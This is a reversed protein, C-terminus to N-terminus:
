LVVAVESVGNAVVKSGSRGLSGQDFVRNVAAVDSTPLWSGYVDVTMSISAHGLQQQVYALSAGSAVLLSGYTHRLSHPTHWGPLKAAVLVRIMARRIRKVIRQEDTRDPKEGLDPFLVWSSVRQGTRFADERRSAQLEILVDRLVDAMDVVRHSAQTKTTGSIQVDVAIKQSGLDVKDWTLAMAEGVRLGACGMVAFGPYLDPTKVRAVAMFLALEAANLAKPKATDRKTGLALRKGLKQLPNALLIGDEVASGLVANMTGLLQRVSGRALKRRGAMVEGRQGQVSAAGSQLKGLLLDKVVPRSLDRVKLRGLRPLIHVRLAGEYRESTRSKIDRAGCEELFRKSYDTLTIDPDVTPFTTQGSKALRGEAEAVEAEAKTDCTVWRRIGFADRFDAVWKGRRKAVAM